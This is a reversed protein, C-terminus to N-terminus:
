PSADQVVPPKRKLAELDRHWLRQMLQGWLPERELAIKINKLRREQEESSLTNFYSSFPGPERPTDAYRRMFDEYEDFLHNTLEQEVSLPVQYRRKHTKGYRLESIISHLSEMSRSWEYPNDSFDSLVTAQNTEDFMVRGPFSSKGPVLPGFAHHLRPMYVLAIWPSLRGDLPSHIHWLRPMRYSGTADTRIIAGPRWYSISDVFNFRYGRYYYVMYAGEIPKGKEDVLKGKTEPSISISAAAVALTVLVVAGLFIRLLRKFRKGFLNWISMIGKIRIGFHRIVAPRSFGAKPSEGAVM